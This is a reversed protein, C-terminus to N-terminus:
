AEVYELRDMQLHCNTLSDRSAMGTLSLLSDQNRGPSTPFGRLTLRPMTWVMAKNAKMARASIATPTGAMAKAYLAGDGFYTELTAGVTASGEGVDPSGLTGVEDVTRTNNNLTIGLSRVFNPRTLVAGSEFIRGCNASATMIPHTEVAPAPDPTDDLSVLSSRGGDMGQFTLQGTLKQRAAITLQLQGVVMGPNVIYSPPNQGMFGREIVTAFQTTGNRIYDGFWVRITKGTGSSPAWGPPLNDLTLANASIAIIRAWGNLPEPTFRFASGTGGIKIWQGVALGLTTFDLTTSGLGTSTATIDGAAGEFGVVKMRAEADPTNDLSMGADPGYVVSTATSSLVKRMGNNAPTTDFGSFLVLHGAKYATGAFGGAASEDIVTVTGTSSAVSTIVADEVGDNYHQPTLSWANYFASQLWESMLSRDPPYHVEFNLTGDNALDSLAPDAEMRDDRIEDSVEYQPELRLNEGTIRARRMRPSAPASGDANARVGTLRLRSTDM